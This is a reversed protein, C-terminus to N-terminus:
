ANSDEDETPSIRSWPAARLKEDQGIAVIYWGDDSMWRTGCKDHHVEFRTPGAVIRGKGGAWAGDRTRCGPCGIEYPGDDVEVQQNQTFVPINYM